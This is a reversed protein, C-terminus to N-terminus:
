LMAAVIGVLSRNRRSPGVTGPVPPVGKAPPAVAPASGGWALDDVARRLSIESVPEFLVVSAPALEPPLSGDEVLVVHPIGREVCRARDQQQAPWRIMRVPVWGSSM